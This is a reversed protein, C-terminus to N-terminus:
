VGPNLSFFHLLFEERLFFDLPLAQIFQIQVKQDSARPLREALMGGLKKQHWKFNGNTIRQQM